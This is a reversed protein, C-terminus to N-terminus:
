ASVSHGALWGFWRDAEAAADVGFLQSYPLAIGPDELQCHYAVFRPQGQDSLDFSEAEIAPVM